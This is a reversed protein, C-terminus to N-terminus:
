KSGTHGYGGGRDNTMDLEGVLVIATEPVEQIQMQAIRTGKPIVFLENDYIYRNVKLIVGVHNRYASDVTGVIVDADIRYKDTMLKLEDGNRNYRCVEMGKVSFGSRPKIIGTYGAPIEMAFMLDVVQRGTKLVYDCPCYLDYCADTPTAKKPIIGGELKIKITKMM